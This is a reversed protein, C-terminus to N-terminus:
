VNPLRIPRSPFGSQYRAMSWSSQGTSASFCWTPGRAMLWRCMFTIKMWQTTSDFLTGDGQPLSMVGTTLYSDRLFLNRDQHTTGYTM